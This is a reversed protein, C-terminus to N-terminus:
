LTDDSVQVAAVRGSVAVGAISYQVQGKHKLYLLSLWVNRSPLRRDGPTFAKTLGSPHTWSAACMEEVRLLCSGGVM